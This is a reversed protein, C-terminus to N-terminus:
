SSELYVMVVVARSVSNLLLYVPLVKLWLVIKVVVERADTNFSGVSILLLCVTYSIRFYSYKIWVWFCTWRHRPGGHPQDWGGSIVVLSCLFLLLIWMIGICILYSAQPMIVVGYFCLVNWKCYSASYCIECGSVSDQSVASGSTHRFPVCFSLLPIVHLHCQQWMGHLDCLPACVCVCFVCVCVCRVAQWWM